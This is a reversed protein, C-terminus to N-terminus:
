KILDYRMDLRCCVSGFQGARELLSANQMKTFCFIYISKMNAQQRKHIRLRNSDNMRTRAVKLHCSFSDRTKTGQTSNRDGSDTM